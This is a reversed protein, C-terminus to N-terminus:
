EDHPHVHNSGSRATRNLRTLSDLFHMMVESAKLMRWLEDMILLYHRQDRGEAEALYKEASVIASGHAWCVSQVAAGLKAETGADDIGSIDFCMPVGPQIHEDTHESFLDGFQGNASLAILGDMLGRIRSDYEHDHDVALALARLGTPRSAIYERLDDVRQTNMSTRISSACRRPSFRAKTPKWSAISYWAGVAWLYDHTQTGRMEELAERRKDENQIKELEAVMPGLDLPNRHGRGRSMKIVQGGMAEILDAYDPKTDSLVM